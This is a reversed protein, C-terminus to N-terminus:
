YWGAERLARAYRRSVPATVGGDLTLTARGDGRSAARVADRAVWWSRHTQAGELGDLEDLADSLRMLILDSGSDTHVRLYHDEAEVAILRANRLRLPIREIFKATQAADPSAHTQVPTARGLFVVLACVAATVTVVPVVLLWLYSVPFLEGHFFLGTAVWVFLCMPAAVLCTLAAAHRWPRLNPDIGHTLLRHCLQGWASGAAMLIAWYALRELFPASATDFAGTVTLFIAAAAAVAVSRVTDRRRGAALPIRAADSQKM